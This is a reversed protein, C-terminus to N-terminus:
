RIRIHNRSGPAGLVLRRSARTMGVYFQRYIGDRGDTGGSVWERMGSLSLDPFLIVTDAEGGKVSHITGVTVMPDEEIPEMNGEVIEALNRPHLAIKMAYEYAKKKSPMISKEFLFIDPAGASVMYHIARMWEDTFWSALREEYKVNSGPLPSVDMKKLSKIESKAGRRFVTKADMHESWAVIQDMTWGLCPTGDVFQSYITDGVLLPKEPRLFAIMRDLVTNGKKRRALPNWDGRTRRYPNHFPIGEDRLMRLSKSLMAGCSALIMCTRGESITENIVDLVPKPKYITAISRDLVGDEPRPRYEKPERHHIQKVWRMALEHVKRPVRYSQALVDKDEDPIPPSLLSDPTAGTWEYLLQDDDGAIVFYDQENAWKRVLALQLASLDQGEDIFSVTPNGPACSTDTLCTEILDTFDLYGHSEKWENWKKSFGRVPHPWREVPDMRSRCHGLRRMMEEGAGRKAQSREYAPEDLDGTSRSAGVALSPNEENWEKMHTEAIEPRGLLQFCLSHLTGVNNADIPVNRGAIEAAAARTFSSVVVRDSGFARAAASIRKAMTTTKGTGPPGFIRIERV